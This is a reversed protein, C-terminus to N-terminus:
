CYHDWAAGVRLLVRVLVLVVRLVVRCCRRRVGPPFPRDGPRKEARERDCLVIVRTGVGVRGYLDMVDQNMM